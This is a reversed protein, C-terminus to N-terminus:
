GNSKEGEKNDKLNDQVASNQMKNNQPEQPEVPRQARNIDTNANRAARAAPIATQLANRLWTWWDQFSKPIIEPMTVITAISIATFLTIYEPLNKLMHQQIAAWVPHDLIQIIM